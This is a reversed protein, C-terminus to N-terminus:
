RPFMRESAEDLEEPVVDEVLPHPRPTRARLGRRSATARTPLPTSMTFESGDAFFDNQLTDNGELLLDNSTADVALSIQFSADPQHRNLRRSRRVSM